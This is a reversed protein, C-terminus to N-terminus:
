QIGAQSHQHCLEAAPYKFVCLVCRTSRRRNIYMLDSMFLIIHIILWPKVLMINYREVHKYQLNNLNSSNTREGGYAHEGDWCASLNDLCCPGSVGGCGVAPLACDGNGQWYRSVHHVSPSHDHYSRRILYRVFKFWGRLEDDWTHPHAHQSLDWDGQKKSEENQRKVHLCM